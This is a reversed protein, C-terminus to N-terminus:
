GNSVWAKLLDRSIFFDGEEETREFRLTKENALHLITVFCTQLSVRNRNQMGILEPLKDYVDSFCIETPQEEEIESRKEIKM